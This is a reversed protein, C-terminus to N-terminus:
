ECSTLIQLTLGVNRALHLNESLFVSCKRWLLFGAQRVILDVCLIVRSFALLEREERPFMKNVM